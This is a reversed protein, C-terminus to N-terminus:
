MFNELTSLFQDRNMRRSLLQIIVDLVGDYVRQFEDNSLKDFAISRSEEIWECRKMSYVMECHGATIQVTKRFGEQTKFFLQGREGLCEWACNILAFYKKHFEPNRQLTIKAKYFAGPKLRKKEDYDDDYVPKLGSPTNLLLLEM